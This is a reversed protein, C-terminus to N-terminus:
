APALPVVQLGVTWGCRTRVFWWSRMALTAVSCMQGTQLWRDLLVVGGQVPVAEYRGMWAAVLVAPLVTLAISWWKM